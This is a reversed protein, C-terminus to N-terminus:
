ASSVAAVPRSHRVIFREVATEVTAAGTKVLEDVELLDRQQDELDRTSIRKFRRALVDPPTFLGRALSEISTGSDWQRRADLLRRVSWALGAVARVPAARDTALVQEWHWLAAEVDGSAMADTVAFVREERHRGTLSRIDEATIEARDGVFTALKSLETDLLGLEDGAYERLAAAAASAMRKGHIASARRAIWDVVGRGKPTECPILKGNEAIAKHLRTTRPLTRCLFVLVGSDCPNQCYRELAARHMSIFPDADDVVAVRRGGLLSMTRVEDLVEALGAEAGDFVTAGSGDSASDLRELLATLAERVLFREAGVIAYVPHVEGDKVM